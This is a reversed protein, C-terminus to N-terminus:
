FHFVISCLSVENDDFVIDKKCTVAVDTIYEVIIQAVEITPKGKPSTKM